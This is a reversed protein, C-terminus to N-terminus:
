AMHMWVVIDLARLLSMPRGDIGVHPEALRLLMETTEKDQLDAHIAEFLPAYSNKVGYFKRVRSDNIPVLDPRKRHLIKTVAVSRIGKCPEAADLCRVFLAFDEPGIPTDDSSRVALNRVADSSVGQFTSVPTASVFANLACQLAHYPNSSDAGPTRGMQDLYKSKIPYSLLAPAALDVGVLVDPSPDQDYLPWGYPLNASVYTEIHRRALDEGITKFRLEAM